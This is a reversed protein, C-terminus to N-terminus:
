PCHRSWTALAEHVRRSNLGREKCDSRYFMVEAERSRYAVSRTANTTKARGGPTLHSNTASLLLVIVQLPVIVQTPEIPLWTGKPPLINTAQHSAYSLFSRVQARVPELEVCGQRHSETTM